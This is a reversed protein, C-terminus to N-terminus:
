NTKSLVPMPVLKPTVPINPRARQLGSVIVKDGVELGKTIARLGHHIRGVQVPRYEVKNNDGVVYVFRQGQDTGLAQEAILKAEFPEGIPLRIRVFLGSSLASDKNDFKARLRWTGTDADVKNDAFNIKGERIAAKTALALFCPCSQM